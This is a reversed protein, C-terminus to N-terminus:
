LRSEMRASAERTQALSRWRYALALNVVLLGGVLALLAPGGPVLSLGADSAAMAEAGLEALGDAVAAWVEVRGLDAVHSWADVPLSEGALLLGAVSVLLVAAAAVLAQWRRRRARALVIRRMVHGVLGAPPEPLAPEDLAAWLRECSEALRRCAPCAALHAAVAEREAPPLEGDLYGQMQERITACHSM